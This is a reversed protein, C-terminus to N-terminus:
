EYRLAVLPDIKTARRAPIYCAILAVVGLLGALAVYTGSDTSTVGFLMTRLLRTLALAAGLGAILGISILVLGQRLVHQLINRTSAGLAVRIGLERTRQNVSYAMVGYIGISALLLALVGFLGVVQLAFRRQGLSDSVVEQMAREGVVPLNPDVQQVQERLPKALSLPLSDTKLYVAMAYSPNQLIPFYLHPQDAQEFNDTKINGVVGVITLWPAESARGGRKIRFGVPNQGGFYQKALAEDILVVRPAKEDDGEAFFRGSVLPTNLAKFYDASVASAQATPLGENTSTLNEITFGNTNHPGSLPVGNGSGLAAYRVGPLARARQLVDKIFISRKVPDRYPDLEPNNPVPLWIRAVLLNAPDFGPNVQLLRGFSRLLLGAAIMLVLSLAFEVVVLASRFKQQRGGAGSGLTGEKLNVTVDPRSTQLAPVIGFLLGTVTSILFVFGLVTANIGVENLRPIEPPLL